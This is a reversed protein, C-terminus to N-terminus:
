EEERGSAELFKVVDFRPNDWAFYAAIKDEMMNITKEAAQTMGGGFSDWERVQVRTALMISAFEEFNKKTLM